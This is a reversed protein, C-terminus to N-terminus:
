EGVRHNLDRGYTGVRNDKGKGVKKEKDYKKWIGGNHGDQDPTIWYKGNSYVPQGHSTLKTKKYGNPILATIKKANDGKGQIFTVKAPDVITGATRRKAVEESYLKDQETGEGILLRKNVENLYENTLQSPDTTIQEFFGRGSNFKPFPLTLLKQQEAQLRMIARDVWTVQKSEVKKLLSVHWSGNSNYVLGGKGDADLSFGCGPCIMADFEEQSIYRSQAAYAGSNIPGNILQTNNVIEGNRNVSYNSLQPLTPRSITTSRTTNQELGDLDIYNIPDGESYSYPSNWPFKQLLPDVSKFRGLRPDYIRFGYDYQVPGENDMEKGNFGYRYGNGASFARGPMQM